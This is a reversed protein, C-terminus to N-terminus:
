VLEPHDPACIAVYRAMCSHYTECHCCMVRDKEIRYAAPQNLVGSFMRPRATTCGQPMSTHPETPFVGSWRRAACPSAAVASLMHVSWGSITENDSASKEELGVRTVKYAFATTALRPFLPSANSQGPMVLAFLPPQKQGAQSFSVRVLATVTTSTCHVAISAPKSLVGETTLSVVPGAKSLSVGDVHDAVQKLSDFVGLGQVM